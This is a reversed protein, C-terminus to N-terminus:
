CPPSLPFVRATPAPSFSLCITGLSFYGLVARVEKGAAPSEEKHREEGSYEGATGGPLAQVLCSHRQSSLWGHWSWLLPCSPALAALAPSEHLVPNVDWSPNLSLEWRLFPDETHCARPTKVTVLDVQDECCGKWIPPNIRM